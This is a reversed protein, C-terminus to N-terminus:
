KVVIQHDVMHSDDLTEVTCNELVTSMDWSILEGITCDEFYMTAAGSFEAKAIVCNKLYTDGSSFDVSTNLCGDIKCGEFYTKENNSSACITWDDFTCNKYTALGTTGVSSTFHINEFTVNSGQVRGYWVESSSISLKTGEIGVFTLNDANFSVNNTFRLVFEGAALYIIDGDQAENIAAILEESTAVRKPEVSFTGDANEVVVLNKKLAIFQGGFNAPKTPDTNFIGGAITAKPNTGGINNNIEVISKLANFIGGNIEVVAGADTVILGHALDYESADAPNGNTFTGGNIILTGGSSMIAAASNGYYTGNGGYANAGKYIASYTGSNVIAKGGNSVAVATSLFFNDAYFGSQNATCNDLVIEGGVAYFCGAGNTSNVTVNNALVVANAWSKVACDNAKSNEIVLDELVMIAKATADPASAMVGVYTGSGVIIKGNKLTLTVDKTAGSGAINFRIVSNGTDASLVFGNLDLTINKAQAFNLANSGHMPNTVNIDQGFTIIDGEVANTIASALEEATYVINQAATWTGDDNKTVKYGPLIWKTPDFNFTGGYVVIPDGYPRITDVSMEPMNVYGNFTGGNIVFTINKGTAAGLLWSKATKDFTGGNIVVSAGTGDALILENGSESDFAGGNIVVKGEWNYIAHRGSIHQYVTANDVTLEGLNYIGGRVSGNLITMKGTSQNNLGYGGNSVFDGGNIIVEGYNYICAGGNTGMANIDVGLVTLKASACHAGNADYGNYIGRATIAGTGVSDKLTLDGHNNIAYKNAADASKLAFGNLDLTATVGEPVLVPETVTVDKVLKSNFGETLAIVLQDPTSVEAVESRVVKWLDGDKQAEYGFALWQTPDADFTGGKITIRKNATTSFNTFNGGNITILATSGGWVNVSEFKGDFNGGNITVYANAGNQADAAVVVPAKFTGGNIVVNAGSSYVYMGYKQGVYTGGNIVTTHGNSFALATNAWPHSAVLDPDIAEHNVQVNGLVSTGPGYLYLGQGDKAEVTINNLNLVANADVYGLVSWNANSVISMDSVTFDKEIGLIIGYAADNDLVFSGGKFSTVKETDIAYETQMGSYTINDNANYVGSVVIDGGEALIARLADAGDVVAISEVAFNDLKVKSTETVEEIKWTVNATVDVVESFTESYSLVDKGDSIVTTIVLEGKANVFSTHAVTIETGELTGLLTEFNEGVYIKASGREIKINSQETETGASVTISEGSTMDTIDMDYSQTTQYLNMEVNETTNTAGAGNVVASGNEVGLNSSAGGFANLDSESGFGYLTSVFGDASSDYDNGFSDYESGLQTAILTVGLDVKAEITKGNNMNFLNDNASPEWWIVIGHTETAGEELQGYLFFSALSEWETIQAIKERSYEFNPGVVAVKLLSAFSVGDVVTPNTASLAFQYKFALNGENAVTFKEYAIAGPEWRGADVDAFLDTAGEVTENSVTANTHYLEVDLNGAVIQNNDSTVSDTFWAFTTGLLMAFCLMLAIISGLLARRANRLQRM